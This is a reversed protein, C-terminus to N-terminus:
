SLRFDFDGSQDVFFSVRHRNMDGRYDPDPLLTLNSVLVPKSVTAFILQVEEFPNKKINELIIRAATFTQDDTDEVSGTIQGSIGEFQTVVDIARQRNIPRYRLRREATVLQGIDDGDLVVSNGNQRLLWIGEPNTTITASRALSRNSASNVVRRIKYTHQLAPAAGIDDWQYTTGSVLVDAPILRAIHVEDRSIMYADPAATDTWTLRVWPTTTLQAATFTAPQAVAGSETFTITTWMDAFPKLGPTAERDYIDFLQVNIQYSLDDTFIRSGEDNKLPLTMAAQTTSSAKIKGSNYRVSTRDTGDTVRIRFAALNTTTVIITPTSDYLTSGAPSSWTGTNIPRYTYTAWASAPSQRGNADEVYARWNVTGGAAITGTMGAAALDLQPLVSAVWGSDWDVVLDGTYDVEVRVKALDTSTSGYETYDFTVVPKQASVVTGNPALATPAEPDESFLVTLTWADAGTDFQAFKQVTAANTTVRWGYNSVTGNAIAQVLATVDVAFEAGDALAGLVVTATAGTVGPQNTWTITSAQWKAAAAQFTLTQAATAGHAHGTLTASAITRGKMRAPMPLWVYGRKVGTILQLWENSGHNKHVFGSDVWADYGRKPTSTLNV